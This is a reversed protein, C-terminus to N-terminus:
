GGKEALSDAVTVVRAAEMQAIRAKLARTRTTYTASLDALQAQTADLEDRVEKWCEFNVDVAWQEYHLTEAARYVNANHIAVLQCATPWDPVAAIFGRTDYLSVQGEDDACAHWLPSLNENVNSGKM